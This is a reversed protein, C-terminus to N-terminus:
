AQLLVASMGQVHLTNTHVALRLFQWAGSFDKSAWSLDASCNRVEHASALDSKSGNRHASVQIRSPSNSSVQSLAACASINISGSVSEKDMPHFLCTQSMSISKLPQLVSALVEM